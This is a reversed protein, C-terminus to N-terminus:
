FQVGSADGDTTSVKHLAASLQMTGHLASVDPSTQLPPDFEAADARGDAFGLLELASPQNEQAALINLLAGTDPVWPYTQVVVNALQFPTMMQLVSCHRPFRRAMLTGPVLSLLNQLKRVTQHNGHPARNGKAAIHDSQLESKVQTPDSCGWCYSAHMCSALNCYPWALQLAYTAQTRCLDVVMDPKDLVGM